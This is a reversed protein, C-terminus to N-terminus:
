QSNGGLVKMSEIFEDVIDPFHDGPVTQRSRLFIRGIFAVLRPKVGIDPVLIIWGKIGPIRYVGDYEAGKDILAKHFGEMGLLVTIDEKPLIEINDMCQTTQGCPLPQTGVFTRVRSCM